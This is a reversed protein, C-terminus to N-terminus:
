IEWTTEQPKEHM